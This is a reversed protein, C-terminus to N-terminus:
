AQVIIDAATMHVRGASSASRAADTRDALAGLDPGEQYGSFYGQADVVVFAVARAGNSVYFARVQLPDHVRSIPPSLSFGGSYVPVPPDLSRAAAGVRFMAPKASAGTALWLLAAVLFVFRRGM